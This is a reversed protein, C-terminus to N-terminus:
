WALKLDQMCALGVEFLLYVVDAQCALVYVESARSVECILTENIAPSIYMYALVATWISLKCCVSDALFAANVNLGYQHCQKLTHQVFHDSHFVGRRCQQLLTKDLRTGICPEPETNHQTM